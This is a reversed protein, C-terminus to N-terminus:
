EHSGGGAIYTSRAGKIGADSGHARRLGFDIVAAKGAANVIRSAKSSIMTQFNVLNLLTTEILQAQPRKATVRIIPTESTFPTGERITTIDGKFKFGRLYDLYEPKFLNLAQLYSIDEDTFQLQCIYDVAEDIGAAIFYGWDQPLSRIFMEFTAVEDMKSHDFYSAVMTLQYLDTLLAKKYSDQANIM